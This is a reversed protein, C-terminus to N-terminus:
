EVVELMTENFKGLVLKLIGDSVVEVGYRDVTHVTGTKGWTVNSVWWSPDQWAPYVEPWEAKFKIRVKQGVELM